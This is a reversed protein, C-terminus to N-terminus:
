LKENTYIYKNCKELDITNPYQEQMNPIVNIM